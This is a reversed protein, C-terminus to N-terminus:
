KRLIDISGDKHLKILKSAKNKITGANIYLDVLNSFYKKAEDINQPPPLAEANASPAILPGVKLLLDRLAKPAPIRFALTKTGRHLYTLKEDPCDLIISIAREQCMDAMASIHWLEELKIKQEETPFVSFKELENTDGILIICPKDPNRKRITYIRNVTSENQARGVIGYITDTPMVAIGGKKLVKILNEDNWINEKM